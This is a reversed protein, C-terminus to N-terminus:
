RVCGPHPTQSKKIWPQAPLPHEFFIADMSNQGARLHKKISIFHFITFKLGSFPFHSPFVSKGDRGTPGTITRDEM